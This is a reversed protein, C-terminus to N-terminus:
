GGNKLYGDKLSGYLGPYYIRPNYRGQIYDFGPEITNLPGFMKLNQAM